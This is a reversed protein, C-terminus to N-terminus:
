RGMIKREDGQHQNWRERESQILLVELKKLHDTQICHKNDYASIRSRRRGTCSVKNCTGLTRRIPRSIPRTSAFLKGDRMFM